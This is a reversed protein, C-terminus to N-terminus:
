RRIVSATLGQVFTRRLIVFLVLPPIIAIAMGAFTLGQDTAYFTSFRTLALQVTFADPRQILVLAGGFDNWALVAVIVAVALIGPRALPIVIGILMVGVSRCWRHAGRRDRGTPHDPLLRDPDGDRVVGDGVVNFLALGPLSNILGLSRFMSFIPVILVETPIALPALVLLFLLARRPPRLRTLAYAATISLTLVVGVTLVTVYLSNALALRPERPDVGRPHERHGAAVDPGVARPLHRREAPGREDVDLGGPVALGRRAGGPPDDVVTSPSGTVLEGARSPSRAAPVGRGHHRLIVVLLIMAMAQAYGVELFRFATVYVDTAVTETAHAPGGATMVWVMDFIRLTGLTTLLVLVFTQPWLLPWLSTASRSAGARERSGHRSSTSARSRRIAALYVVMTFGAFRWVFAVMIAWLALDADALPAFTQTEFGLASGVTAVVGFFPAFLFKWVTGVAVSALVFPAFFVLQLLTKGRRVGAVLVALVLGLGTQLVVAVAPSCCPTSWAGISCPMASSRGRTTSSASSTELDFGRTAHVSLVVGYALPYLLFAALVALIPVLFLLDIAGERARAM